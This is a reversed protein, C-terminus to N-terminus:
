VFSNNGFKAPMAMSGSILSSVPILLTGIAKSALSQSDEMLMQSRRRILITCLLLNLHVYFRLDSYIQLQRLLSGRRRGRPSLNSPMPYYSMDVQSSRSSEGEEFESTDYQTYGNRENEVIM